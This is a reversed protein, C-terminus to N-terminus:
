KMGTFNIDNFEKIFLKDLELTKLKGIIYKSTMGFEYPNKINQIKDAFKKSLIQQIASTIYEEQPLVSIVSAAKVRGAQRNGINVTGINFSPAEIIGSSSNGVVGNSYKMCSLYLKHGLNDFAKSAKNASIFEDILSNIVAGCKDANSKSFIYNVNAIKKLSALLEQFENKIEDEPYVSPPHYTVLITSNSFSFNLEKELEQKNKLALNNINEVGLSGFNFVYNPNEGLQIIRKKYEDTAAFHIHSMKTICHRFMDDLSGTTKEGGHIHALPIRQITAAIASAFIEFRDGLLIILDPSYNEYVLSIKKITNAISNSTNIENNKYEIIQVKEDVKVGDSVIEKFSEGLKKELHAGTVVLRFNLSKDESLRKILNSQIGYEARNGTVLLLKRKKNPLTV